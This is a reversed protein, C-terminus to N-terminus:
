NKFTAKYYEELKKWVGESGEKLMLEFVPEANLGSGDYYCPKGNLYKCPGMSKQGKYMPKPSHYGLDAPMPLFRVAIEILDNVPKQLFEKTVHPLHWNTMLLFQVAGLSGKLVFRLNCGHVGYNKESDTNRRDFAPEITIERIFKEVM